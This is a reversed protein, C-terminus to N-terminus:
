FEEILAKAIVMDESGFLSANLKPVMSQILSFLYPVFLNSMWSYRKASAIANYLYLWRQVRTDWPDRYKKMEDFRKQVFTLLKKEQDETLEREKFTLM